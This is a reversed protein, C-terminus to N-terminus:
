LVTSMCVPQWGLVAGGLSVPAVHGVYLASTYIIHFYVEDKLDTGLQVLQINYTCFSSM